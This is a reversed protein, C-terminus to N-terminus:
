DSGGSVRETRTQSLHLKQFVGSVDNFLQFIRVVNVLRDLSSIELAQVMGAGSDTGHASYM